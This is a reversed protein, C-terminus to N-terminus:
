DISIVGRAIRLTALAGRFLEDLAPLPLFEEQQVAGLGVGGIRVALPGGVKHEDRRMSLAVRDSNMRAHNSRHYDLVPMTRITQM